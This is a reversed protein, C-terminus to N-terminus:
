WMTIYLFLAVAFHRPTFDAAEPVFGRHATNGVDANDADPELTLAAVGIEASDMKLEGNHLQRNIYAGPETWPFSLVRM